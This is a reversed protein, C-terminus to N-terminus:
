KLRMSTKGDRQIRTEVVYSSAADPIGLTATLFVSSADARELQMDRLISKQIMDKPLFREFEPKSFEHSYVVVGDFLLTVRASNDLYLNDVEIGIDNYDSKIVKDSTPQISVRVEWRSGEAHFLSDSSTTRLINMAYPRDVNFQGLLAGSDDKVLKVEDGMGNIFKFLHKDQRTILYHNTDNGKVYLSDGYIWFKAPQSSSDPFFISDGKAMFIANDNGDDTWIGQLMEKAQRDERASTDSSQRCAGICLALLM